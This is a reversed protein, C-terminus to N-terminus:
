ASVMRLSVQYEDQMRLWARIFTSTLLWEEWLPKKIDRLAQFFIEQKKFFYNTKEFCLRIKVEDFM